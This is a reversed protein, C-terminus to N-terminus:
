TKLFALLGNDKQGAQSAPETREGDGAWGEGLGRNAMGLEVMFREPTLTHYGMALIRNYNVWNKNIGNRKGRGTHLTAPFPFVVLEQAAEGHVIGSLFPTGRM